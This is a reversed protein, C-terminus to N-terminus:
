LAPRRPQNVPGLGRAEGARLPSRRNRTSVQISNALKMSSSATRTRSTSLHLYGAGVDVGKASVQRDADGHHEGAEAHNKYGDIKPASRGALARTAPNIYPPRGSPRGTRARTASVFPRSTVGKVGRVPAMGSRWPNGANGPPAESHAFCRSTL